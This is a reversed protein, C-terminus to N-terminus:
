VSYFYQIHIDFYYLLYVLFTSNTINYVNDEIYKWTISVKPENSSFLGEIYEHCHLVRTRNPKLIM